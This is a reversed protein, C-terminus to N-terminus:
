VPRGRSSTKFARTPFRAQCAEVSRLAPWPSRSPVEVEQTEAGFIYPLPIPSPSTWFFFSLPEKCCCTVKTLRSPAATLDTLQQVLRLFSLYICAHIHSALTKLPGTRRPQESYIDRFSSPCPIKSILWLSSRNPAPTILRVTWKKKDPSLTRQKAYFPPFSRSPFKLELSNQARYSEKLGPCCAEHPHLLALRSWFVSTGRVSSAARWVRPLAWKCRWARVERLWSVAVRPVWLQEPGKSAVGAYGMLFSPDLLPRHTYNAGTTYTTNGVPASNGALNAQWVCLWEIWRDM